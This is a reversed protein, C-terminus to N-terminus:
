VTKGPAYEKRQERVKQNEFWYLLNYLGVDGYMLLLEYLHSIHQPTVPHNGHDAHFRKLIDLQDATPFCRAPQYEALNSSSGVQTKEASKNSDMAKTLVISVFFFKSLPPLSLKIKEKERYTKGKIKCLQVIRYKYGFLACSILFAFPPSSGVNRVVIRCVKRFRM